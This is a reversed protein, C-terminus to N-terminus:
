SECTGNADVRNELVQDSYQIGADEGRRVPRPFTQFTNMSLMNLWKIPNRRAPSGSVITVFWTSNKLSPWSKLGYKAASSLHHPM